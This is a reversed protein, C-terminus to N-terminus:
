KATLLNKNRLKLYKMKFVEKILDDKEIKAFRIANVQKAFVRVEPEMGNNDLDYLTHVIYMKM